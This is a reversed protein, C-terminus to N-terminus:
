GAVVVRAPRLVLDNLRYGSQLVEVISGPEAGAVPTQAVAEHHVPDFREGKVAYSEIGSRTLAVALESQVLRIGKTMHHEVEDDSAEVAAIARDLNDLAPLLERALRSMGRAEAARLDRAMRKRFNEFDAQTRQALALYEDAKGAREQLAAPDLAEAADSSPSPDTAVWGEPPPPDDVAPAPPAPAEPAAEQEIDHEPPHM